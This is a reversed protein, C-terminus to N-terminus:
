YDISELVIWGGKKYQGIDSDVPTNHLHYTVDNDEIEPHNYRIARVRLLKWDKNDEVMGEHLEERVKRQKWSPLTWTISDYNVGQAKIEGAKEMSILEGFHEIWRERLRPFREAQVLSLKDYFDADEASRSLRSFTRAEVCIEEMSSPIDKLAIVDLMEKDKALYKAKKAKEESENHTSQLKRESCGTISTFGLFPILLGLIYHKLM